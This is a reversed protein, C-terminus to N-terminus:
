QVYGMARLQREQLRTLEPTLDGGGAQWRGDNRMIPPTWFFRKPPSGPQGRAQLCLEVTQLGFQGLDLRHHGDTDKGSMDGAEVALSREFLSRWEDEGDLRMRVALDVAVRRVTGRDGARKVLYGVDLEAREPLFLERCINAAKLVLVVTDNHKIRRTEKAFAFTYLDVNVYRRPDRREIHQEPPRQMAALQPSHDYAYRAPRMPRYSPTLQWVIRGERTLEFVRGGRSSTVLLNGNALHQQAGGTSSFFSPSEYSWVTSGNEPDIELLSSRRYAYLDHLGNNFVLINGEGPHGRPIMSAEHQHDLKGYYSWVVQGTQRDLIYLANLNRASILINGPRFRQDGADHRKNALLEHVSNIHTRNRVADARELDARLHEASHWRWATEGGPTVEVLYDLRQAVDHALLLRNGNALQILDHHPFDHGELRYEWVQEGEWSFQRVVGDKSIVLLSGDALLRARGMVDVGRWEHVIRGNMDILTPSRRGYLILNYGPESSEPYYADIWSEIEGVAETRAGPAGCAALSVVLWM